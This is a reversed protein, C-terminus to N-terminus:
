PLGKGAVVLDRGESQRMRDLEAELKAGRAAARRFRWQGAWVVFSGSLFGLLIGFLLVVWVPVLFARLGLVHAGSDGTLLWPMVIEAPGRNALALGVLALTLLAVLIGRLLKILAM